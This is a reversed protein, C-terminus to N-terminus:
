NFDGHFLRMNAAISSCLMNRAAILPATKTETLATAGCNRLNNRM